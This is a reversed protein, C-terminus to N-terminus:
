RYVNTKETHMKIFVHTFYHIHLVYATIHGRLDIYESATVPWLSKEQFLVITECYIVLSSLPFSNSVKKGGKRHCLAMHLAEGCRTESKPGSYQCTDCARLVTTELEGELLSVWPLQNEASHERNWETGSNVPM